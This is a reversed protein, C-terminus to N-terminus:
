VKWICFLSLFLFVLLSLLSFSFFIRLVIHIELVRKSDKLCKAPYKAKLIINCTFGNGLSKDEFRRKDDGRKTM